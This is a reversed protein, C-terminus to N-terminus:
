FIFRVMCDDTSGQAGFSFSVTSSPQSEVTEPEVIPAAVETEVITSPAEIVIPGEEIIPAIIVERFVEPQVFSDMFVFGESVDVDASEFPFAVTIGSEYEGEVLPEMVKPAEVVVEVVETEVIPAAVEIEVIPAVVKDEPVYAEIGDDPIDFHDSEVSVDDKDVKLEPHFVTIVDSQDEISMVDSKVIPVTAESGAKIRRLEPVIIGDAEQNRAPTQEVPVDVPVHREDVTSAQHAEVEASTSTPASVAGAMCVTSTFDSEADSSLELPEVPLGEYHPVSPSVLIPEAEEATESVSEIRKFVPADNFIDEERGLNIYIVNGGTRVAQYGLGELTRATDKTANESIDEQKAVVEKGMIKSFSAVLKDYLFRVTTGIKKVLDDVKFRNGKHSGWSVGRLKSAM